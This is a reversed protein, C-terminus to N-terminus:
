PLLCSIRVQTFVAPRIANTVSTRARGLDRSADNKAAFHGILVLREEATSHRPDPRVSGLPDGFVTTAEVFSVAHTQRKRADKAPDWEFRRAM